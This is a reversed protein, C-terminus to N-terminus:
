DKTINTEYTKFSPVNVPKSFLCTKVKQIGLEGIPLLMNIYSVIYPDELIPKKRVILEVFELSGIERHNNNNSHVILKIADINSDHYLINKDSDYCIAGKLEDLTYHTHASLRPFYIISSKDYANLLYGTNIIKQVLCALLYTKTLSRNANDITIIDNNDISNIDINPSYITYYTHNTAALDLILRHNCGKFLHKYKNYKISINIHELVDYCISLDSCYDLDLGDFIVIVETANLRKRFSEMESFKYLFPQWTPLHITSIYSHKNDQTEDTCVLINYIM